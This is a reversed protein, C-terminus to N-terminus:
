TSLFFFIVSPSIDGVDGREWGDLNITVGSHQRLLWWISHGDTILCFLAFNFFFIHLVTITIDLFYLSLLQNAYRTVAFMPKTNNVFLILVYRKDGNFRQLKFMCVKSSNDHYSSSSEYYYLLIVYVCMSNHRDRPVLVYPASVMYARSSM